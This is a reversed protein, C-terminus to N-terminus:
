SIHRSLVAYDAPHLSAKLTKLLTDLHRKDLIDAITKEVNRRVVLAKELEMRYRKLGQEIEEPRFIEKLRLVGFDDTAEEPLLGPHGKLFSRVEKASAKVNELLDLTLRVALFGNETTVTINPPLAGEASNGTLTAAFAVPVQAMQPNQTPWQGLHARVAAWSTTLSEKRWDSIQAGTSQASVWTNRHEPRFGIQAWLCNLVRYAEMAFKEAITPYAAKAQNTLGADLRLDKGHMYADLCSLPKIAFIGLSVESIFDIYCQFLSDLQKKIAPVDLPNDSGLACHVLNLTDACVFLVRNTQKIYKSSTRFLHRTMSARQFSALLHAQNLVVLANARLHTASTSM